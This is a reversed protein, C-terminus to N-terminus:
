RRSILGLCYVTEDSSYLRSIPRLSKEANGTRTFSEGHRVYDRAKVSRRKNKRVIFREGCLETRLEALEEGFVCDLIKDRIVIVILGFRIDRTLIDVDFLVRHYVVLNIFQAM